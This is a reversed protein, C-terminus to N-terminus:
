FYWGLDVQIFDDQRFDHLPRGAVTKNFARAEITLKFEDGLRRSAEIFSSMIPEDLDNIVGMLIETSQADNLAFRLATTIDNQFPSSALEDRDDYLYKIVIGLDSQSDCYRTPDCYESINSVVTIQVRNENAFHASFAYLM